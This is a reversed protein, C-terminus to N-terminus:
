RRPTKLGLRLDEPATRKEIQSGVIDDLVHAQKVVYEPYPVLNCVLHVDVEILGFPAALSPRPLSHDSVSLRDEIASGLKQSTDVLLQAGSPSESARGHAGVAHPM